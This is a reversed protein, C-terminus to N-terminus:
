SKKKLNDQTLLRDTEEKIRKKRDPDSIMTSYKDDIKAQRRESALLEKANAAKSIEAQQRFHDLLAQTKPNIPNARDYAQRRAEEKAVRFAKIEQRTGIDPRNLIEHLFDGAKMNALPMNEYFTIGKLRNMRAHSLIYEYESDEDAVIEEVLVVLRSEQGIEKLHRSWKYKDTNYEAHNPNFPNTHHENRRREVNNTHGIYYVIEEDDITCVLAYISHTDNM